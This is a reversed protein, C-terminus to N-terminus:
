QVVEASFGHGADKVAKVLAEPKVSEDVTLVAKESKLDVNCSKVGPVGQLAKSVAPPCANCVMGDINLTVTKDGAWAAPATLAFLLLAPLIGKRM